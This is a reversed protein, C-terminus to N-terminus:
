LVVEVFRTCYVHYWGQMILLSRMTRTLTARTPLLGLPGGSVNAVIETWSSPAVPRRWRRFPGYGGSARYASPQGGIRSAGHAGLAARDIAGDVEVSIACIQVRGSPPCRAVKVTM